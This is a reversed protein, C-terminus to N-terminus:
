VLPNKIIREESELGKKFLKRSNQKIIKKKKKSTISCFVILIV